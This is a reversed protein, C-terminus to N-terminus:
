YDRRVQYVQEVVTFISSFIKFYLYPSYEGSIGLSRLEVCCDVDSRWRFQLLVSTDCGRIGCDVAYLFAVWSNIDSRGVVRVFLSSDVSYIWWTSSWLTDRWMGRKMDFYKLDYKFYIMSIYSWKCKNWM